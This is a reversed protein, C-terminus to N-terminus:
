PTGVTIWPNYRSPTITGYLPEITIGHGTAREFAGAEDLWTTSREVSQIMTKDSRMGMALCRLTDTRHEADDPAIFKIGNMQRIAVTGRLERVLEDDDVALVLGWSQPLENEIKDEMLRRAAYGFAEIMDTTLLQKAQVSLPKVTDKAAYIQCVDCYYLGSNNIERVPMNCAKHITVRDDHLMTHFNAPYVREAYYMSSYEPGKLLTDKVGRGQGHSDIVIRRALKPLNNDITYIIRAGDQTDCRMASIRAFEYWMKDQRYAVTSEMPSPSVGYDIFIGWEDCEIQAWDISSLISEATGNIVDTNTLSVQYFPINATPIVPFATEGAEGDLGCVQTLVVDSDWTDTALQGAIAKDSHYLFNATIAYRRPAKWLPSDSRSPNGHFSWQPKIGSEMEARTVDAISKFMGMEGSRPVGGWFELADPRSVQKRERYAGTSSYGGEDGLVYVVSLGVMARGAQAVSSGEIRHHWTLGTKWRWIGDDQNRNLFLSSLLKSAIIRSWLRNRVPAMHHEGPAHMLAEVNHNQPNITSYWMYRLEYGFTTKGTKRATRAIIRQSGIAHDPRRWRFLAVDWGDLALLRQEHTLVIKGHKSAPLDKRTEPVRLEEGMVHYAFGIPNCLCNIGANIQEPTFARKTKVTL